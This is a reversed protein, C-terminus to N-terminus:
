SIELLWRTLVGMRGRPATLLASPAETKRAIRPSEGYAERFARNFAPISQFGARYAIPGIRRDQLGPATLENRARVLRRTRIYCAVGGVPEFLRYLSARSLGFTSLIKEIGLERSALNAEIFRCITTFSELPAAVATRNINSSGGGSLPIIKALLAVVGSVIEDMDAATAHNVQSLLAVLAAAVVATGSNESSVIQGGNGVAECFASPLRARPIWLSLESTTAGESGRILEVSGHLDFLIIDGALARAQGGNSLVDITGSLVLCIGVHDIPPTASPTHVLSARDCSTHSLIFSRGAWMRYAGNPGVLAPEESTFVPSHIALWEVGQEPSHPTWSYSRLRM